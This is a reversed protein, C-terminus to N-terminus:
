AFYLPDLIGDWWENGTKPKGFKERVSPSEVDGNAYYATSRDWDRTQTATDIVLPTPEPETATPEPSPQSHKGACGCLAVGYLALAAIKAAKMLQANVSTM